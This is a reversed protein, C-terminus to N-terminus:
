RLRYHDLVSEIVEIGLGPGDPVAITGGSQKFPQTVLEDQMPNALPKMEFVLCRTTSGSLALSAATTVASSWAHANFWTNAAEVLQIVKLGTTIGGARGPDFGVVDSIASKVLEQYGRLTFEREGTGVLCSVQERLRRFGEVDQPELPEEIWALNYEHFARARDIADSVTWVLSQGRDMSLLADPGMAARLQGVFDVDRGIDYGLRAEGRKGMGIKVGAYGEERVYAGHREAEFELSPNFAHTSAIVPLTPRVCGGLLESVSLGLVKGRVDWLAVDIASTAFSAVGGGYSYWWSRRELDALIAKHDLPSRGILVDTLGELIVAAARTSEEFQTIAEGWGVHGDSTEIRCFLLFRTSNSDNPEPYTVPIADVKAITTSV